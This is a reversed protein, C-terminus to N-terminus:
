CGLVIVKGDSFDLLGPSRFSETPRVSQSYATLSSCVSDEDAAARAQEPSQVRMCLHIPRHRGGIHCREDFLVHIPAGGRNMPRM